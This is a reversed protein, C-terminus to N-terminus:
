EDARLMKRYSAWAIENEWIVVTLASLTGASIRAALQESAIRSFHEISPNLGAFEPLDNLTHDRYHDVLGTLAREIEVIRGDVKAREYEADVAQVQYYYQLASERMGLMYQTDAVALLEGYLEVNWHWALGFEKFTVNFAQRHAEETDALTGDVDFIVAKLTM